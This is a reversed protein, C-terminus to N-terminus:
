PLYRFRAKSKSDRIRNNFASKIVDRRKESKGDDVPKSFMQFNEINQTSQRTGTEEDQPALPLM